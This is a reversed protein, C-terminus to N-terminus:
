AGGAAARAISIAERSSLVKAIDLLFVVKSGSKGIGLIFGEDVGEGLEPSPEIQDATVTLVELVQDVLIGMTLPRGEVTCQVVIIVSQDTPECAGLGFKLRLDVVPIVRGRLNVVGRVAPPSLPVRTIELLGIIERVTLIGVAYVEGAVQFAMYKGALAALASPTATVSEANRNSESM